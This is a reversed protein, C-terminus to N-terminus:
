VSMERPKQVGNQTLVPESAAMRSAAITLAIGVGQTIWLAPHASFHNWGPQPIGNITEKQFGKAVETERFEKFPFWLMMLAALMQLLLPTKNGAAASSHYKYLLYTQMCLIIPLQTVHSLNFATASLGM